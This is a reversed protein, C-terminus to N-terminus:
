DSKKVSGADKRRRRVSKKRQIDEESVNNPVKDTTLIRPLENTKLGTSMGGEPKRMKGPEVEVAETRVIPKPKEIPAKDIPVFFRPVKVNEPIEAVEGAQWLRTQFQCLTTVKYKIM